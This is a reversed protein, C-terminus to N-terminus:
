DKHSFDQWGQHRSLDHEQRPQNGQSRPHMGAEMVSESVPSAYHFKTLHQISYFM